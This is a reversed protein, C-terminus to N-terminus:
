RLVLFLHDKGFITWAESDESVKKQVPSFIHFSKTECKTFLDIKTMSFHLNKLHEIKLAKILFGPM